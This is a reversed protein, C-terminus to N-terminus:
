SRYTISRLEVFTVKKGQLTTKKIWNGKKDYVYLYRYTIPKSTNSLISTSLLYQRTGYHLSTRYVSSDPTFYHTRINFNTRDYEWQYTYLLKGGVVFSGYTQHEIIFGKANFTYVDKGVSDGQESFAFSTITRQITDHTFQNTNQFKNSHDIYLNSTKIGQENYYTHITTSDETANFKWCEQKINGDKNFLYTIQSTTDMRKNRKSKGTASLTTEIISEVSSKLNMQELDTTSIQGELNFHIGILIFLLFITKM